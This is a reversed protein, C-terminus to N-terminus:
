ERTYACKLVRVCVRLLGKVAQLADYSSRVSVSAFASASAYVSAHVGGLEHVRVLQILRERVRGSVLVRLRELARYSM